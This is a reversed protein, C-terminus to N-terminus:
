LSNAAVISKLYYIIQTCLAEEAEYLAHVSIDTKGDELEPEIRPMNVVFDILEFDGLSGGVKCPASAHLLLYQLPQCFSLTLDIVLDFQTEEFLKLFQSNPKHFFDVSNLDLMNFSNMSSSTAIKKRVFGYVSVRKGDAALKRSVDSIFSRNESLESEYLVLVSKAHAYDVFQKTRVGRKNFQHVHYSFVQRRLNNFM